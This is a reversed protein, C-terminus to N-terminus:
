EEYKYKKEERSTVVRGGGIIEEDERVAAGGVIENVKEVGKGEWFGEGTLGPGGAGGGRRRVKGEGRAAAM